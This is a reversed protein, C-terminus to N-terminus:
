TVGSFIGYWLSFDFSSKPPPTHPTGVVITYYYLPTPNSLPHGYEHASMYGQYMKCKEENVLHTKQSLWFIFHVM